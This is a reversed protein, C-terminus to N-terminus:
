LWGGTRMAVGTILFGISLLTIAVIHYALLSLNGPGLRPHIRLRAHLALLVTAALLVFKLILGRTFTSDFSFWSAVGQLQLHALWLGTLVQIALAGMGLPEYGQEFERILTPDGRRLARPLVAVSLTLHGGIWM